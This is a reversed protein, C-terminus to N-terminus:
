SAGTSERTWYRELPISRTPHISFTYDKIVEYMAQKNGFNLKVQSKYMEAAEQRLHLVELIEVLVPKMGAGIERLRKQLARAQIAYPFDEYFKVNAGHRLLQNAASFVIQHDVHHGMGLPAYWTVDPLREHLMVLEQAVQEVLRMDSRHVKGSISWRHSYYPPTGRYIADPHDLWLGDAHLYSVADADERRRSALLSETDQEFGMIKQTKLAFSSLQQGSPPIGAFITIVLPHEGHGAQKGITGGCSYVADDFHPSLYAHRHNSTIDNISNLHLLISGKM